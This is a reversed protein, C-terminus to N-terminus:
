HSITDRQRQRQLRLQEYRAQLNPDSVYGVVQNDVSPENSRGDIGRTSVVHGVLRDVGVPERLFSKLYTDLHGVGPREIEKTLAALYAIKSTAVWNISIGAREALEAHVVMFTRGNGDLFPHGYAFYGMVEGPKDAMFAKDSGLKLGYGVAVKADAPHAFLIGGKGVAIDPATETRDQGAWPYLDGFLTQHTRLVDPYSLQRVFSLYQFAEAIGAIFASHELHKVIEPDKEGFVNQLYGRTEFDNFPDFTM